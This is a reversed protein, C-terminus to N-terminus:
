FKVCIAFLVIYLMVFKILNDSNTLNVNNSMIYM